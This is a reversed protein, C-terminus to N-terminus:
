LQLVRLAQSVQRWDTTKSRPSDLVIDASDVTLDGIYKLCAEVVDCDWQTRTGSRLIDVARQQGMATRYVRSSTMADYADSVALIRAMLPIEEGVLNHPYGTGDIREHHYLVGPLAFKLKGLEELIRHGIEPHKRIIAFEDPELKGPKLLVHDPIGIKGIDHLVGALYIEQCSVESLHLRLAIQYGVNGVRESHGHTYPDRAEIANSMARLTGLVLQESELLSANSYGDALLFGAVEHLLEADCPGFGCEESHMPLSKKRRNLAIVYGIAESEGVPVVVCSRLVGSQLQFDVDNLIVSDGCRPKQIRQLLQRIDDRTWSAKGSITSELGHNDQGRDAYMFIAIADADILTRLSEISQRSQQGVAKKRIARQANLQRLWHRESCGRELECEATMIVHNQSDIHYQRRIAEGAVRLLKKASDNPPENLRGIAYWKGEDICNLPIAFVSRNGDAAVISECLCTNALDMADIALKADSQLAADYASRVTTERHLEIASRLYPLCATGLLHALDECQRTVSAPFIM